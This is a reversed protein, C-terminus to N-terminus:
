AQKSHAQRTNATRAEEHSQASWESTGDAFHERKWIPVVEKLRDILFRCAKFAEDRHPSSVAIVVSIQGIDVKGIRHVISIAQLGWREQAEREIADITKRAMPIYAEYELGTVRRGTVNDRTTGIFIDIAGSANTKVAEIVSAADIPESTILNM